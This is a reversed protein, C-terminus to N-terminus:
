TKRRYIKQPISVVDFAPKITSFLLSERAGIALFGLSSLSRYFLQYVKNQLERNFYIMVNRCCILQFENFVGDTVLNHTSFVIKKRLDKNILVNDYRATYYSSFDQLGGSQLYNATYDKMAKLPVFGQKAKEISGANIDTAYIISRSLLGAEHLVICMSFVEEGTACGPHWIKIIPYSALVPLVKERLERYFLPDRFMETVKVTITELFFPFFSPNNILQHKLEFFSDLKAIDCVRQVRRTFSAMAYNSFDYGYQQQIVAIIESVEEITLRLQSVFDCNINVAIVM